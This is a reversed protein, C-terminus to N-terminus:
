GEGLGSDGTGRSSGAIVMDAMREWEGRAPSEPEWPKPPLGLVREALALLNDEWSLLEGAELIWEGPLWDRWRGEERLTERLRTLKERESGGAREIKLIELALERLGPTYEETSM